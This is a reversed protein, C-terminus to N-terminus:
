RWEGGESRFDPHASSHANEPTAISPQINEPYVLGSRAGPVDRMPSNIKWSPANSVNVSGSGRIASNGGARSTSAHVANPRDVMVHHSTGAADNSSLGASSHVRNPDLHTIVRPFEQSAKRSIAATDETATGHLSHTSYVSSTASSVQHAPMASIDSDKTVTLLSTISEEREQRQRALPANYSPSPIKSTRRSSATRASTTPSSEIPSLDGPAAAAAVHHSNVPLSSLSASKRLPSEQNPTNQCTTVIPGTDDGVEFSFRRAESLTELSLQPRLRNIFGRIHSPKHTPAPYITKAVPATVVRQLQLSGQHQTSPTEFPTPRHFLELLRPIISEASVGRRRSITVAMRRIEAMENDVAPGFHESSNRLGKDSAEDPLLDGACSFTSTTDDSFSVRVDAPSQQQRETRTREILNAEELYSAQLLSTSPLNPPPSGFPLEALISTKSTKKTLKKSLKAMKASPSAPRSKM